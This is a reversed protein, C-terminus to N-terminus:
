GWAASRGPSISLLPYILAAEKQVTKRMASRMAGSAACYDPWRAAIERLTWAGIHQTSIALNAAGEVKLAEIGAKQQAPALLILQDYKHKLLLTRARSARTLALRVAPLRDMPPRAHVTLEDLQELSVLILAHLRQLENLM